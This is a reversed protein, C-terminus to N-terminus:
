GVANEEGKEEGHGIEEEVPPAVLDTVGGRKVDESKGFECCDDTEDGGEDVEESEEANIEDLRENRLGFAVLFVLAENEVSIPIDM